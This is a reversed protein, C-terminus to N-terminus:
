DDFLKSLEESAAAFAEPDVAYFESARAAYVVPPAGGRPLLLSETSGGSLEVRLAAAHDSLLAVCASDAVPDPYGTVPLLSVALLACEVSDAIVTTEPVGARRRSFLGGPLRRFEVPETGPRALAVVEARDLEFDFPTRVRFAAAGRSLRRALEGPLTFSEGRGEAPVTDGDGVARFAFDALSEGTASRVAVRFADPSSALPAERPAPRTVASLASIRALLGEAEARDALRSAGGEGERVVFGGGTRELLMVGATSSVRLSHAAPPSFPFLPHERLAAVGQRLLGEVELGTAVLRGDVLAYIGAGNPTRRGLRVERTRGACLIRYGRSGDLGFGPAAPDVDSLELYRLSRALTALFADIAAGDVTAGEATDLRWVGGWRRFGHGAGREVITLAEVAAPDFGPLLPDAREGSPDPRTAFLLALLILLAAAARLTPKADM